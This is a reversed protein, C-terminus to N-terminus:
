KGVCRTINIIGYQLCRIYQKSFGERRNATELINQELLHGVLSSSEEWYRGIDEVHALRLM